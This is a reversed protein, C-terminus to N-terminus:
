PGHAVERDATLTMLSKMMTGDCAIRRPAMTTRPGTCPVRTSHRSRPMARDSRCSGSRPERVGEALPQIHMATEALLIRM